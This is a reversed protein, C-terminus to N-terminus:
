VVSKRDPTGKNILIPSLLFDFEGVDRYNDYVTSTAVLEVSNDDIYSLKGDKAISRISPYKKKVFRDNYFFRLVLQEIINM